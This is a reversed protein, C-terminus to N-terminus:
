YLFSIYFSFTFFSFSSIVFFIIYFNCFLLSFIFFNFLIIFLLFCLCLNRSVFLQSNELESVCTKETRRPTKSIRASPRHTADKDPEHHNPPGVHARYLKTPRTNEKTQRNSPLPHAFRHRDFIFLFVSVPRHFLPYAYGTGELRRRMALVPIASFAPEDAVTHGWTARVGPWTKTACAGLGRYCRTGTARYALDCWIRARPLRLEIEDV